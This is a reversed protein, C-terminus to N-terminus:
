PLHYLHLQKVGDGKVNVEITVGIVKLAELGGYSESLLIHVLINIITIKAVLYGDAGLGELFYGLTILCLMVGAELLGLLDNIGVTNYANLLFHFAMPSSLNIYARGIQDKM